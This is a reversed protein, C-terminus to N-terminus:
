ILFHLYLSCKLIHNRIRKVKNLTQKLLSPQLKIIDAFNAVSCRRLIFTSQFLPQSTTLETWSTVLLNKDESRFYITSKIM